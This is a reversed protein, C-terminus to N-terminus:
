AVKDDFPKRTKWDMGYGIVSEYVAPFETDVFFGFKTVSKEIEDVGAGDDLAQDFIKFHSAHGLRHLEVGPLDSKLSFRSDSEFYVRGLGSEPRRLGKYSGLLDENELFKDSEMNVVESWFDESFGNKEIQQTKLRMYESKVEEVSGEYYFEDDATDEERIINEDAKELEQHRMANFRAERKWRSSSSSVKEATAYSFKGINSSGEETPRSQETGCM